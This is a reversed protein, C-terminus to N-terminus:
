CVPARVSQVYGLAEEEVEDDLGGLIDAEVEQESDADSDSGGDDGGLKQPPAVSAAPKNLSPTPVLDGILDQILQLDQPVGSPIKFVSNGDM